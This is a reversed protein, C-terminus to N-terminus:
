VEKNEETSIEQKNDEEVVGNLREILADITEMVRKLDRNRSKELVFPNGENVSQMISLNLDICYFDDTNLIKELESVNILSPNYKNIVIYSNEDTIDIKSLADKRYVIVNRISSYLCEAMIITRDANILSAFTADINLTGNIDIFIFDFDMEKIHRLVENFMDLTFKDVYHIDTVGGIVGLNRVKPHYTVQQEIINFEVGQRVINEYLKQLDNTELSMMSSIDANTLNFDIMLVKKEPYKLATRLAINSSLTTKGTGGDVSWVTFIKGM